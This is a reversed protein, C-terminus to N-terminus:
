NNLDSRSQHVEKEMQDFFVTVSTTSCSIKHLGGTMGCEKCYSDQLCKPYTCYNKNCIEGERKVGGLKCKNSDNGNPWFYSCKDMGDEEPGFDIYSQRFENPIATFRYCYEKSPCQKNNCMSIDPM